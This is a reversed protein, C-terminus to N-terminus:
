AECAELWVPVADLRTHAEVARSALMYRANNAQILDGSLVFRM